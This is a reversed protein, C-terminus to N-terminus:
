TVTLHNPPTLRMCFLFYEALVGTKAEFAASFTQQM